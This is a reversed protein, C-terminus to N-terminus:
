AAKEPHVALWGILNDAVQGSTEILEVQGAQWARSAGALLSAPAGAARSLSAVETLATRLEEIASEIYWGSDTSTEAATATILADTLNNVAHDLDAISPLAVPTM